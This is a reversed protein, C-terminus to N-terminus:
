AKKFMFKTSSDLSDCSIAKENEAEKAQDHEEAVIATTTTPETVEDELGAFMRDFNELPRFRTFVKKGKKNMVMYAFIDHTLKKQVLMGITLVLNTHRKNVIIQIFRPFALFIEKRKRKINEYMDRGYPHLLNKETPPYLSEYGMRLLKAEILQDDLEIPDTAKDGFSSLIMGHVIPKFMDHKAPPDGLFTKMNQDPVFRIEAMGKACIESHDFCNMIKIEPDIKIPVPQDLGTTFQSGLDSKTILDSDSNNLRPMSSYNHNFTPEVEKFSIGKTKIGHLQANIM